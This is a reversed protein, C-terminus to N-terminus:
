TFPNTCFYQRERFDKSLVEYDDISADPELLGLSQLQRNLTWKALNAQVVNTRDLNDLCNTRVVGQQRKTPQASANDLQFYRFYLIYFIAGSRFCLM